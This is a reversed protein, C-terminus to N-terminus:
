SQKDDKVGLVLEWQPGYEDVLGTDTNNEIAQAVIRQKRENDKIITNHSSVLHRLGKKTSIIKNTADVVIGNLQNKVSNSFNAQEEM